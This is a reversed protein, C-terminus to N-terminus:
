RSSGRVAVPKSQSWSYARAAFSAWGSQPDLNTPGAEVVGAGGPRGRQLLLRQNEVNMPRDEERLLGAVREPPAVVPVDRDTERVLRQALLLASRFAAARSPGVGPLQYKTPFRDAKKQPAPLFLSSIDCISSPGTPKRQASAHM